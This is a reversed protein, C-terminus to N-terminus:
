DDWIVDAHDSLLGLWYGGVRVWGRRTRGRRDIVQVRYVSRKNSTWFFPGRALWRYEASLIEVGEEAAWRELISDSRQFHAFFLLVALGIFAAIFFAEM